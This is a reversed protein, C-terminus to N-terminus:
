AIKIKAELWGRYVEEKFNKLSKIKPLFVAANANEKSTSIRLYGNKLDEESLQLYTKCPEFLEPHMLYVASVVDWNFFGDLKYNEDAHGFWYGTKEYIYAGAGNKNNKLKSEFEDATFYATLCNNGTATSVPCIQTLVELSAKPDCSFNLEKIEKKEKGVILPETIGGMLIIEKLNSFFDSDIQAASWLNTLSGTALISIEGKYNRAQEALFKAAPSEVKNPKKEGKYVPIDKRRIEELMRITNSFTTEITTNGYCSTIGMLKAEKTGLLYLLALGDDVDCNDVGFTNDCDFIIKKM